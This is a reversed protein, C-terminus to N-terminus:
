QYWGIISCLDKYSPPLSGCLCLGFTDNVQNVAHSFMGLTIGTKRFLQGGFMKFQPGRILATV